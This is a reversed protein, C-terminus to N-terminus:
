GGAPAVGFSTGFGGYLVPSQPQSVQADAQLCNEDDTGDLCIREQGLAVASVAIM